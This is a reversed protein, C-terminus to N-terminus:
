MTPTVTTYSGQIPLSKGDAGTATGSVTYTKGYGLPEALTWSTGDAAMTGTVATGEPNTMSLQTITGRAVSITVPETPSIDRDDLTPSESVAAVPAPEVTSSASRSSTSSSSSRTPGASSTRDAATESATSVQATGSQLM